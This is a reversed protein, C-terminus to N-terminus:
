TQGAVAKKLSLVPNDGRGAFADVYSTDLGEGSLFEPSLLEYIESIDAM